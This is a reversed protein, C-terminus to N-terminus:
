SPITPLINLADSILLIKTRRGLEQLIHNLIDSAKKSTRLGLKETYYYPLSSALMMNHKQLNNKLYMLDELGEVYDRRKIFEDVNLRDTVFLKLAESGLGESCEAFLILMGKKDLGGIVNWLSRISSSLTLSKLPDGLGVLMVRAPQKLVRKASEYLKSSAKSHTDTIDGLFLESVDGSRNMVEISTSVHLGAEEILKSAFLAPKTDLGPKPHNDLRRKFAEAMFGSDTAKIISVPGGGFGFLPDFGVESIMIMKNRFFPTPVRVKYGDVIGVEKDAEGIPIIDIPRDKFARKVNYLSDKHVSVTFDNQSKGKEIQLDLLSTLVKLTANTIDALLIISKGETEVSDLREYLIEDDLKPVDPNLVEALNEAKIDVAVEVEGYPIWIEPM